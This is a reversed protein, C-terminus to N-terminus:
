VSGDSLLIHDRTELSDIGLIVASALVLLLKADNVFM